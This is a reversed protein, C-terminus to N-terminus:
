LHDDIPLLPHIIKNYTFIKLNAGQVGPTEVPIIKAAREQFFARFHHTSKLGIISCKEPEIGLAVMMRDDMTQIRASGICIDVNGSKIRVSLGFDRVLGLGMPSSSLTKGDFMSIFKAGRIDIPEGHLKEKRGGLMVDVLDGPTAKAIERVAIPDCIFCFVSGPIDEKLMRRLLHTGDGPAGGGPNDSAENLVLYGEGKFNCVEEFAEDLGMIPKLFEDMHDMVYNYLEDAAEDIPDGEYGTVLISSSLCAM